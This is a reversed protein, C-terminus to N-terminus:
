LPPDVWVCAYFPTVKPLAAQKGKKRDEATAAKKSANERKRTSEDGDGDKRKM